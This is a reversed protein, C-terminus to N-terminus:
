ALIVPVLVNHPGVKDAILPTIVRSVLGSGHLIIVLISAASEM